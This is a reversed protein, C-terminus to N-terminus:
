KEVKECHFPDKGLIKVNEFNLKQFKLVLNM